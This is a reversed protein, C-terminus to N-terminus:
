LSSILVALNIRNVYHAIPNAMAVNCNHMHLFVLFYHFIRWHSPRDLILEATPIFHFTKL